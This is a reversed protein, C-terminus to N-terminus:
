GKEMKVYVWVDPLARSDRSFCVPLSYPDELARLHQSRTLLNVFWPRFRRLNRCNKAWRMDSRVRRLGTDGDIPGV